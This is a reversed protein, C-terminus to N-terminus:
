RLPGGLEYVLNCGFWQPSASSALVKAHLAGAHGIGRVARWEHKARGVSAWVNVDWKGVDWTLWTSTPDLGGGTLPPASPGRAVANADPLVWDLEVSIEVAAAEADAMVPMVLKFAKLQTAKGFTSFAQLLEAQVGGGNDDPDDGWILVTGENAHGAFDGNTTELWVSAPIGTWRSCAGTAAHFVVQQADGPGWPVNLLWLARANLPVVQWGDQLRRDRVLDLYTPEIRHTYAKTPMIAADVGSTAIMSLPYIGAETLLLVDAGFAQLFRLGVPRPVTWRGILSWAAVNSPDTGKFAVVEGETTVVALYDDPGNGGDLTWSIGGAVGGGQACVGQLPFEVFAGGISAPPGYWFSLIDRRGCFIMSKFQCAWTISPTPTNTATWAAWTTGDYQQAPDVGNFVLLFNGGGAAVNLAQCGVASIGTTVAAGVAGSGTVDYIGTGSAAFLNKRAGSNYTFLGGIRGPMGTAWKRWGPRVSLVGERQITWNDFIPAFKPEMEMLADLTNWGGHPAPLNTAAASTVSQGRAADGAV